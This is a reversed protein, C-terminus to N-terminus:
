QEEILKEVLKYYKKKIGNHKCTCNSKTIESILNDHIEKCKDIKDSDLGADENFCKLDFFRRIKDFKGTGLRIKSNKKNESLHQKSLTNNFKDIIEQPTGEPFIIEKHFKM